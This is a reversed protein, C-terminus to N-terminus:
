ARKEERPSHGFHERYSKSFHSASVFGTALAVNMVSMTTQRLLFRSRNLRMELYYRSPTCSLYRRFLREVQRTSLGVEKALAAQGLPREINESMCMISALLKPQSVALRVRLAMRQPDEETRIREYILEESVAAALDHGHQDNIFALMMDVAAMGGACTFRNRDLVYIEERIDLEPYEERFGHLNEWHLTCAYDDLLGLRALTAAGTCLAGVNVNRRSMQRVWADFKRDRYTDTGDGGCILITTIVPEEPLPETVVQVNGSATVPAGDVSYSQWTYLTEGAVHNALRLAEIAASYAGLSFNPILVFGFRNGPDARM